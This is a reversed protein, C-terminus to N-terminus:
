DQWPLLAGALMLLSFGAAMPPLVDDRSRFAYTILGTFLLLCGVRVPLHNPLTIALLTTM